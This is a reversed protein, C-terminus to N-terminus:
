FYARGRSRLNCPGATQRSSRLQWRLFLEVRFAAVATILGRPRRRARAFRPPMRQGVDPIFKICVFASNEHAMAIM